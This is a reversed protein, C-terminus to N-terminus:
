FEFSAFEYDFSTSKLFFYFRFAMADSIDPSRGIQQKIKDKPTISVKGDQDAKERKIVQLEQALRREQDDTLNFVKIKNDNVHEALKCYLQTKLNQYNEDNLARSNNIISVAEPYLDALGGGVGDVDIAINNNTINYKSKLADIHIKQKDFTLKSLEVIEIVDLDDWIIICTKDKGLRAVDITMYMTRTNSPMRDRYFMNMISDYGFLSLLDQFEWEGHLLRMKSVEDLRSLSTIYHRSIFENDTVLSQVFAKYDDLTGSQSPKYFGDYLWGKSPNCTLLIKPELNYEDLKYRIRSVVINKAKQTIQNAEDIYAGSIELGSISEFEPDSPYLMLDKLIVESGNEFTITKLQQNYTYHNESINLKKLVEFFTKLTTSKLTDLKSRGMLWRTGPYKICCVILWLCGLFSKGGGAGGGFLIEQIGNKNNTLLKLAHKQKANLTPKITTM